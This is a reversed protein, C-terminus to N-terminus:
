GEAPSLRWEEVWATKLDGNCFWSCEVIAYHERFQHGCATATISKDGDIHIRCGRAFKSKFITEGM